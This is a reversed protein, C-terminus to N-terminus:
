LLSLHMHTHQHMYTHHTNSVINSVTTMFQRGLLIENLCHSLNFSLSFCAKHIDLAFLVGPLLCFTSLCKFPTPKIHVLLGPSNTNQSCPCEDHYQYTLSIALALGHLNSQMLHSAVPSKSCFLSLMPHKM